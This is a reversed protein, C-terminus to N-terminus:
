ATKPATFVTTNSLRIKHENHDALIEIAASSQQIQHLREINEDRLAV